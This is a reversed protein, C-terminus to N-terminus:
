RTNHALLGPKTALYHCRDPYQEFVAPDALVEGDPGLCKVWGRAVLQALTSTLAAEALETRQRLDEFSTVFYLEDLVDFEADTM